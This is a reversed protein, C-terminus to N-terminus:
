EEKAELYKKIYIALGHNSVGRRIVTGFAVQINNISARLQLTERHVGGWAPNKIKGIKHLLHVPL